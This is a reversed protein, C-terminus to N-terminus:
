NYFSYLAYGRLDNGAVVQKVYEVAKLPDREVGIGEDYCKGLEVMAATVDAVTGSQFFNKCTMYLAKTPPCPTAEAPGNFIMTFSLMKVGLITSFWTSIVQMETSPTSELIGELVGSVRPILGLGTRVSWITAGTNLYFSKM